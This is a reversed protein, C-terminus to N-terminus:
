RVAFTARVVELFHSSFELQNVARFSHPEIRLLRKRPSANRSSVLVLQTYFYVLEAGADNGQTKDFRRIQETKMNTYTAM